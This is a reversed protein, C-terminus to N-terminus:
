YFKKITKRKNKKKWDKNEKELLISYVISNENLGSFWKFLHNLLSNLNFFYEWWEFKKYNYFSFLM